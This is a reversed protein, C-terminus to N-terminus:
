HSSLQFMIIVAVPAQRRRRSQAIYAAAYTKGSHM